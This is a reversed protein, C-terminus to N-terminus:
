IETVYKRYVSEPNLYKAREIREEDSQDGNLLSLVFSSRELADFIGEVDLQRLVDLCTQTLENNLKDCKDEQDTDYYEEMAEEVKSLIGESRPLSSDYLVHRPSDCPSWKLDRKLEGITKSQYYEKAKYEASVENLGKQTSVTPFLYGWADGSSYLALSYIDEHSLEEIIRPFVIRCESYLTNRFKLTDFDM